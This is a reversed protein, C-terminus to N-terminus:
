RAAPGVVVQVKLFAEIADKLARNPVLDCSGLPLNTMPSTQKQRLWRHIERREYTIGDSAIVPDVMLAHAIPCKYFDPVSVSSMVADTGVAGTGMSACLAKM